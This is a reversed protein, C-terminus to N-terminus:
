GRHFLPKLVSRATARLVCEVDTNLINVTDINGVANRNKMVIM